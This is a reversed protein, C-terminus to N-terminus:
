LIEELSLGYQKLQEEYEVNKQVAIQYNYKLDEIEEFFQPDFSDLEAKLRANEKRLRDREKVLSGHPENFKSLEVDLREKESKLKSLSVHFKESKEIEKKLENRLKDNEAITQSLHQGSDSTGDGLVALTKRCKDLEFKLRKNETELTGKLKEKAKLSENEGQLREIVKKMASVVKEVEGATYTGMEKGSQKSNGPSQSSSKLVQIYQELDKVRSKLRPLDLIAQEHQLQLQAHSKKCQLLEERIETVSKDSASGDIGATKREKQLLTNSEKLIKNEAKLEEMENNNADRLEILLEDNKTQLEYIRNKLAFAEEASICDIGRPKDEKAAVAASKMTKEMIRIKDILGDRERENRGLTEKLSTNHRQISEFERSKESLKRRLNEVKKQWKKSEEWRAVEVSTHKTDVSKAKNVRATEMEELQIKQRDLKEQLEKCKKKLEEMEHNTAPIDGKLKVIEKNLKQENSKADALLKILNKNEEDQKMLQKDKENCENNKRQFEDMLKECELDARQFKQNANDLESEMKFIKIKLEKRKEEESDQIARLRETMLKQTDIDASERQTHSQLTKQATNVLDARVQKLSETLTQLQQEKESLQMRLKDIMERLPRSPVKKTAELAASLEGNLIELEQELETVQESKLAVASQLEKIDMRHKSKLQSMEKRIKDEKKDWQQREKERERKEREIQESLEKNAETADNLKEELRKLRNTQDVLPGTVAPPCQANNTQLRALANSKTQLKQEILIIEEKHTEITMQLDRRSEQLLRQYKEIQNDKQVLQTQLHEITENSIQLTRSSQLQRQEEKMANHNETTNLEMQLQQILKDKAILQDRQEKLSADVQHSKQQHLQLELQLQNIIQQHDCPITTVTVTPKQEIAIPQENKVIVPKDKMMVPQVGDLGNSLLLEEYDQTAQILKHEFQTINDECSALSEQCQKLQRELKKITQCYRLEKVKMEGLRSHWETAQSSLENTGKLSTMLEKLNSQQIELENLKLEVKERDDQAKEKERETEEKDKKVQTLLLLFKVQDALLTAGNYKRHASLLVNTLQHIRNIYQSKTTIMEDEKNNLATDTQLLKEELLTMKSKSSQLLDSMEQEKLQSQTLQQQLQALQTKQDSQSSLTLIQDRLLEIEKNNMEKDHQNMALQRQAITLSEKLQSNEQNLKAKSIELTRVEDKLQTVLLSDNSMTDDHAAQLHIIRESLAKIKDNTEGGGDASLIHFMGNVKGVLQNYQHKLEKYESHSMCDSLQRQLISIKYSASEKFRRLYMIQQTTNIEIESMTQKLTKIENRLRTDNSELIGNRRSLVRENVRLVTIARSVEGIKQRVTDEDDKLMDQLRTLEQLKIENIQQETVHKDRDRELTDKEREWNKRENHYEKYLVGQQHIIIDFKRRYDELQELCDSLSRVDDDRGGHDIPGDAQQEVLQRKLALLEMEKRQNEHVLQSIKGHLEEREKEGENYDTEEQENGKKRDVFKTRERNLRTIEKQCSERRQKEKTLESQLHSIQGNLEVITTLHTPSSTMSPTASGGKPKTSKEIIKKRLSMKEEELREMDRVLSRNQEKVENMERERKERLQTLDPHDDPGLGLRLRMAENGDYLTDMQRQLENTQQILEAINNDRQALEEKKQKIETIAEKLGFEGREYIEIVRRTEALETDCEEKERESQLRRQQENALLKELEGCKEKLQDIEKIM